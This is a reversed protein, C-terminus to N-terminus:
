QADWDKLFQELVRAGRYLNGAAVYEDTSHATGSSGYGTAFAPIGHRKFFTIVTAGESGTLRARCGMKRAADAYIKLFDRDRSIAYPQQLDDIKIKFKDSFKAVVGKIEALLKRADMGPLFRVDLSFECFDAVMNVKDGGKITGVNITPPRLLPDKQYRFRHTKFKQIVEAALEIANVGRWKYAGHAKKGFIQVRLHMLGKQIIITHFEDSDLIVALKPRLIKKQLLPLIGWHSGTEEDVTAAMIIDSKIPARDEVLSRMVELCCALNGKDDSAGRGYIRGQHLKGGLPPFKWGTGLPVTDMHPSILTAQKGARARPLSGKLTAIINPRGAAFALSKVQLGLSKMDREVFRALALEKGPPNQSDIRILKQTLTILRKRNIM